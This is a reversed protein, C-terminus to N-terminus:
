RKKFYYTDESNYYNIGPKPEIEAISKSYSCLLYLSSLSRSAKLPLDRIECMDLLVTM